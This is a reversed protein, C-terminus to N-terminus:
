RETTEIKREKIELSNTATCYTFTCIPICVATNKGIRNKEM